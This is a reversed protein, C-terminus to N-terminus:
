SPKAGTCAPRELTPQFFIGFPAARKKSAPLPKGCPPALAENQRM